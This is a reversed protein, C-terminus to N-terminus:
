ADVRLWDKLIQRADADSDSPLTLVCRDPEGTALQCETALWEDRRFAYVGFPQEVGYQSLRKEWNAANVRLGDLAVVLDGASLGALAAPGRPDVQKLLVGGESAAVKVGLNPTPAQLVIQVSMAELASQWPLEDTTHLASHLLTNALDGVLDHLAADLDQQTLGRESEGFQQWLKQMLADLSSGHQRLHSDLCLAVVAGKSYYSVVAHPTNENAQYFKTWAERSSNALTQVQRGSNQLHRTITTSLLELYHKPTVRGSRLLMLDDYYSTVGEFFWLLETIMPRQLDPACMAKPKLRKVNWSHFYEHSCLGLLETYAASPQAPERTSPLSDRSSLLSTSHTHELGGYGSDVVRLLFLYRDFPLEGFFDAQATCIAQLDQALRNLDGRHKGTVALAHPVGKVEFTLYDFVGIEVPHEILDAYSTAQYCGFGLPPAGASTMATAVRWQGQLQAPPQLEVTHVRHEQGRVALLLSSANFFGGFQDLLATRVSLDWAYVRYRVTLPGQCPACRWTSTGLVDVVVSQGQADNAMLPTLQKSFDRIMYSGPIWDPLWLAQGDSDPEAITLCVDFYHSAPHSSGVVYHLANQM